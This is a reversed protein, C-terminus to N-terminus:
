LKSIKCDGKWGHALHIAAYEFGSSPWEKPRPVRLIERFGFGANDIMEMRLRTMLKNMAVLFVVNKSERMTKTLFANFLDKSWPPNTITWDFCQDSYIHMLYDSGLAIEHTHLKGYLLLCKSFAGEGICPELLNGAPMFHFVIASALKPPTM